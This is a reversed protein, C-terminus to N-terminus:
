IGYVDVARQGHRDGSTENPIMRALRPLGIGIRHSLEPGERVM